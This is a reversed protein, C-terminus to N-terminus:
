GEPPVTDLVPFPAAGFGEVRPPGLPRRRDAEDDVEGHPTRLVVERAGAASWSPSRPRPPSGATGATTAASRTSTGPAADGHRRGRPRRGAARRSGDYGDDDQDVAQASRSRRPPRRDDTRREHRAEPGAPTLAGIPLPEDYGIHIGADRAVGSSCTGSAAPLRRRHVERAVDDPAAAVLRGLGRRLRRHRLRGARGRRRQMGFFMMLMKLLSAITDALTKEVSDLSSADTRNRLFYYLNPHEDLWGVIVGVAAYIIEHPTRRPRSSCSRCSATSCGSCSTSPSPRGCTTATASTATSCPAASAPSRPSRSPALRRRRPHRHRGRGGGRLRGPAAARHQPGACAGATPRAAHESPAGLPTDTDRTDSRSM